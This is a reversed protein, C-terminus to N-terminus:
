KKNDIANIIFYEKIFEFNKTELARLIFERDTGVIGYPNSYSMRIHMDGNLAKDECSCLEILLLSVDEALTFVEKINDSVTQLIINGDEVATNIEVYVNINM